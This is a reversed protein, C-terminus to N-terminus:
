FVYLQEDDTIDITMYDRSNPPPSRESILVVNNEAMKECWRWFEKNDFKVRDYGDSYHNQTKQYPPDCYIIFDEIDSFSKYDCNYFRVDKMNKAAQSVRKSYEGLRPVAKDYYTGLYRHLYSCTHGLFGHEPTIKDSEKLRLYEGESCSTPPKWGRQCARWM